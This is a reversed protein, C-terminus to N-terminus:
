HIVLDYQGIFSWSGIDLLIGIFLEWHFIAHSRLDDFRDFRGTARAELGHNEVAASMRLVGTLEINVQRSFPALFTFIWEVVHRTM